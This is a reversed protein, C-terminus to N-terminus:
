KTEPSAQTASGDAPTAAPSAAPGASGEQPGPSAAPSAEAQPTATAAPTATADAGVGGEMVSRPGGVGFSLLLATLMFIAAAAITIKALISQTGRPGFATTSISSTL